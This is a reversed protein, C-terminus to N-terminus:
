RSKHQLQFYAALRNAIDSGIDTVARQRADHEAVLTAYDSTLINYSTTVRSSGFFLRRSNLDNLNFEAVLTLNARTAIESKQIALEEKNERLLVRLRYRAKQPRGFLNIRDLLHNHLQQGLRDKIPEIKVAALEQHSASDYGGGYIPKFGCGALWAPACALILVRFWWM